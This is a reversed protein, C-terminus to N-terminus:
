ETPGDLRMELEIADRIPIREMGVQPIEPKLKRWEALINRHLATLVFGCKQYFGLAHLNDNTTCLWVRRCGEVCALTRVQEILATGIGHGPHLSDLTVVECNEGEIHYTLLGVYNGDLIVVFGPLEHPRYIGSITIVQEAGWHDVMWRAVWARDSSDIPRIVFDTIEM